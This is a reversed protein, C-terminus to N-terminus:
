HPKHKFLKDRGGSFYADYAADGGVVGVKAEDHFDM